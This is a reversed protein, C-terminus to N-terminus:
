PPRVHSRIRRGRALTMSRQMLLGPSCADSKDVAVGEGREVLSVEAVIPRESPQRAVALPGLGPLM